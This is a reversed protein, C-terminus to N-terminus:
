DGVLWIGQSARLCYKLLKHVEISFTGYRLVQTRTITPVTDRSIGDLGGTHICPVLLYRYRVRSCYTHVCYVLSLRQRTGRQVPLTRYLRTRYDLGTYRYNFQQM